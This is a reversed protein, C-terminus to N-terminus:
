GPLKAHASTSVKLEPPACAAERDLSEGGREPRQVVALADNALARCPAMRATHRPQTRALMRTYTNPHTRARWRTHTHARAHTHAHTLARHQASSLDATCVRMLRAVRSARAVPSLQSSAPAGPAALTIVVAVMARGGQEVWNCVREGATTPSPRNLTHMATMAHAWNNPPMQRTKGSEGLELGRTQTGWVGQIWCRDRKRPNTCM